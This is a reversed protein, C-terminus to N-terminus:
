LSHGPEPGVIYEGSSVSFFFGQLRRGPEM